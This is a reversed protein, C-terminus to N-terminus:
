KNISERVTKSLLQAEINQDNQGNEYGNLWGKNYSNQIEKDIKSDFPRALRFYIERFLWVIWNIFLPYCIDKNTQFDYYCYGYGFPLVYNLDVDIRLLGKRNYGQM